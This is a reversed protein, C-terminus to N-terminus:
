TTLRTQDDVHWLRMKTQQWLIRGGPGLVHARNYGDHCGTGAFVLGTNASRKELGQILATLTAPSVSGEPLVVWTGRSLAKLTTKVIRAPDAMAEVAFGAHARASSPAVERIVVDQPTELAPVITITTPPDSVGGVRPSQLGISAGGLRKRIPVAGVLLGDPSDPVLRGGRQPRTLPGRRILYHTATEALVPGAPLSPPSRRGIRSDEIVANVALVVPLAILWDEVTWDASNAPRGALLQQAHQVAIAPRDELDIQLRAAQQFVTDGRGELLSQRLAQWPSDDILALSAQLVILLLRQM